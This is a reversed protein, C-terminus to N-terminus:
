SYKEIAIVRAPAGDCNKIKLPLAVLEVCNSGLTDVNAIGEIIIVKELLIQHILTIEEMDNVDAVSPPEVALMKVQNEVCWLAMSEAVRPLADRFEPKGAQKSWNTWFILSDGAKFDIADNREFEEAEILGGPGIHRLDLVWAKGIFETIPIEDITTSNVDFHFPADMHTGSHSNFQLATSNWGNKEFTTAMESSFGRVDPQYPATLDTLAPGSM